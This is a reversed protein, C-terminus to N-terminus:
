TSSGARVGRAQQSVVRTNPAPAERWVGGGGACAHHHCELLVVVECVVDEVCCHSLTPRRRQREGAIWGVNRIWQWQYYMFCLTCLVCLLVGHQVVTPEINTWRRRRQSLMSGVTTWMDRTQQAILYVVKVLDYLKVVHRHKIYCYVYFGINTYRQAVM